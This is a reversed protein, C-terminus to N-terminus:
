LRAFGRNFETLGDKQGDAHFFELVEPRIKMFNSIKPFKGFRQGGVTTKTLAYRYIKTHIDVHNQALKELYIGCLFHKLCINYRLIFV